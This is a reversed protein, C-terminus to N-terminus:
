LATNLVAHVCLNMLQKKIHEGNLLCMKSPTAQPTDEQNTVM